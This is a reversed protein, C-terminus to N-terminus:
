CFDCPAYQQTNVSIRLFNDHPWTDGRERVPDVLLSVQLQYWCARSDNEGIAQISTSVKVVITGSKPGGFSFPLLCLM